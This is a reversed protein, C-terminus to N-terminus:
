NLDGYPFTFDEESLESAVSKQSNLYDIERRKYAKVGKVIHYVSENVCYTKTEDKRCAKYDRLSYKVRFHKRQVEWLNGNEDTENHLSLTTYKFSTIISFDNLNFKINNFTINFNRNSFNVNDFQSQTITDGIEVAFSIAIFIIFIALYLLLKYKKM